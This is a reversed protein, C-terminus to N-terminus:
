LYVQRCHPDQRDEVISGFNEPNAFIIKNSFVTRDHNLHFIKKNYNNRYNNCTVTEVFITRCSSDISPWIHGMTTIPLLHCGRRQERYSIVVVYIGLKKTREILFDVSILKRNKVEVMSKKHKKDSFSSSSSTTTSSSSSTLYIKKKGKSLIKVEREEMQNQRNEMLVRKM